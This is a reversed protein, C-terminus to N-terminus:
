QQPQGGLCHDFSVSGHLSLCRPEELTSFMSCLFSQIKFNNFCFAIFTLDRMQCSYHHLEMLNRTCERSGEEPLIIELQVLDPDVCVSKKLFFVGFKM